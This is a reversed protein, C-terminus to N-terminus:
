YRKSGWHRTPKVPEGKRKLMSRYDRATRAGAVDPPMVTLIFGVPFEGSPRHYVVWLVRPGLILTHYSRDGHCTESLGEGGMCRKALADLDDWNLVIGYHELARMACHAVEHAPRRIGM